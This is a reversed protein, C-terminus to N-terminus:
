GGQLKHSRVAAGIVTKNVGDGSTVRRIMSDDTAGNGREAM